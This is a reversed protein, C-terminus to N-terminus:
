PVGDIRYYGQPDAATSRGAAAGDLIRLVAGAVGTSTTPATETVRGSLTLTNSGPAPPTPTPSPVATPATPSVISASPQNGTCGAALLSFTVSAIVTQRFLVCM